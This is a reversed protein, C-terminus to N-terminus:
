TRTDQSRTRQRNRRKVRFILCSAVVIILLICGTITGAIIPLQEANTTSLVADLVIFTDNFYAIFM